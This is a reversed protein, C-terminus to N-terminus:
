PPFRGAPTGSAHMSVVKVLESLLLGLEEPLAPAEPAQLGAGALSCVM